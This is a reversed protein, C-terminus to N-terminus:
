TQKNSEGFAKGAFTYAAALYRAVFASYFLATLASIIAFLSCSSPTSFSQQFPPPTSPPDIWTEAEKGGKGTTKRAQVECVWMLSSGLIADSFRSSPTKAVSRLWLAGAIGLAPAVLILEVVSAAKGGRM